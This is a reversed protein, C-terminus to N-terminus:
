AEHYVVWQGGGGRVTPSDIGIWCSGPSGWYAIGAWGVGDEMQVNVMNGCGTDYLHHGSDAFYRQWAEEFWEAVQEAESDANIWHSLTYTVGDVTRNVTTTNKTYWVRISKGVGGVTFNRTICEDLTVGDIVPGGACAAHVSSGNVQVPPMPEPPHPADGHASAIRYVGLCALVVVAISLLRSVSM